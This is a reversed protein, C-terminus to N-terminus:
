KKAIVVDSLKEPLQTETDLWDEDATVCDVSAITKGVLYELIVGADLSHNEDKLVGSFYVGTWDNGYVFMVDVTDKTKRTNKM